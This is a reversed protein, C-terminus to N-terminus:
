TLVKCSDVRGKKSSGVWGVLLWDAMDHGMGMTMVAPSSPSQGEPDESGLQKTMFMMPKKESM